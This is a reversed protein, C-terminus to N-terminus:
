GAEGVRGIEHGEYRAKAEADTMSRRLTEIVADIGGDSESTVVMYAEPNTQSRVVCTFRMERDWDRELRM